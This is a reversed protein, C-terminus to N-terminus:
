RGLVMFMIIHNIIKHEVSYVILLWKMIILYYWEEGDLSGMSNQVTLEYSSGNIITGSENTQCQYHGSHDSSVNVLVLDGNEDVLM